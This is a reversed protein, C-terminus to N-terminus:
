STRATKVLYDLITNSVTHVRHTKVAHDSVKTRLEQESGARTVYGCGNAGAKQCSHEYM